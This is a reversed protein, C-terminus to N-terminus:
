FPMTDTLDPLKTAQQKPMNPTHPYIDVLKFEIQPYITEGKKNIYKESKSLNIMVEVNSTLANQQANNIMTQFTPNNKFKGTVDEKFINISWYDFNKKGTSNTKPFNPQRLTMVYKNGIQKFTIVDGFIIAQNYSHTPM